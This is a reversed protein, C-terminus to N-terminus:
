KATQTAFREALSTLDRQCTEQIRYLGIFIPDVVARGQENTQGMQEYLHKLDRDMVALSSRLFDFDRVSRRKMYALLTAQDTNFETEDLVTDQHSITGAFSAADKFLVDIKNNNNTKHFTLQSKISRPFIDDCYRTLRSTYRAFTARENERSASDLADPKLLDRGFTALALLTGVIACAVAVSQHRRELQSWLKMIRQMWGVAAM